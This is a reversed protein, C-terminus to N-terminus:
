ERTTSYQVPKGRLARRVLVGYVTALLVDSSIANVVRDMHRGVNSLKRQISKFRAPGASTDHSGLGTGTSVRRPEAEAAHQAADRARCRRWSPHAVRARRALQWSRM